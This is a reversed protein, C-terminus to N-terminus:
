PSNRSPLALESVLKKVDVTGREAIVSRGNTERCVTKLLNSAQERKKPELERVLGIAYVKIQLKALKEILQTQKVISSREEGDTILVIFKAGPQNKVQDAISDIADLLTTQGGEVYINEMAGSLEAEDQTREIKATLRARPDPLTSEFAYISVPGSDHIQHAIEKGLEKVADFQSRMSGTSDILIAYARNPNQQGAAIGSGALLIVILLLPQGKSLIFM